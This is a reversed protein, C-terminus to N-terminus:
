LFFGITEHISKKKKKKSFSFLIDFGFVLLLFRFILFGFSLFELRPNSNTESPRGKIIPKVIPGVLDDEEDRPSIQKGRWSSKVFPFTQFLFGFFFLRGLLFLISSIKAVMAMASAAVIKM